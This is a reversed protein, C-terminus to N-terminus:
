CALLCFTGGIGTAFRCIVAVWFYHTFSFEIAALIILCMALLIVRRVSTRDLLIGAPFLLLVNAYFYFASLQGLQVASVQFEKILSSTLSNFANLQIFLYFFYLAASFVVLYPQFSFQSQKM